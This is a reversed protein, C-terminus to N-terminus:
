FPINLWPDQDASIIFYLRHLHNPGHEVRDYSLTETCAQLMLLGMGREPYAQLLEACRRLQEDLDFGESNDEITCAIRHGQPKASFHIEPTRGKFDAHQVLNAIWEHVGVKLLQITEKNLASEELVEAEWRDLLIHMHDIITDLDNFCHRISTM